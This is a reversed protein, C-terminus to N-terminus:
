ETIETVKSYRTLKNESYTETRLVGYAPSIWETIKMKMKGMTVSSQKILVTSYSDVLWTEYQKSGITLTDRGTCQRSTCDIKFNMQAGWSETITFYLQWPLLSDGVNMVFPYVIPSSKEMTMHGSRDVEEAFSLPDIILNDQYCIFAGKVNAPKGSMGIGKSTFFSFLSDGKSAISDVVVIYYSSPTGDAKFKENRYTYGKRLNLRQHCPDVQGDTFGFSFACVLICFISLFRILKM